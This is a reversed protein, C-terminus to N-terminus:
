RGEKLKLLENRMNEIKVREKLLYFYLLTFAGLCVLLTYFMPTEITMKRPYFVVPHITRWWRISIWVIPVDIFAIIGYVSSFRARRTPEPIYFRLILYAIYLLWLVLTTTLRPDWTWWKGWTAKAWISGTILVLTCFIVGIEASSSSLIEWKLQADKEKKGWLYFIGGLFVIFFALFAIWALPVHFYFIRQLDGMIEETPAYIFALYLSLMMLLFTAGAFM